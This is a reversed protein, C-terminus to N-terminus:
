QESAGNRRSVALLLVGGRREERNRNGANFINIATSNLGGSRLTLAIRALFLASKYIRVVEQKSLTKGRINVASAGGGM